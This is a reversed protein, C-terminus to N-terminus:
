TPSAIPLSSRRKTAGTKAPQQALSMGALLAAGAIMTAIKKLM